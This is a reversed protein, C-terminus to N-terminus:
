VYVYLANYAILIQKFQDESHHRLLIPNQSTLGDGASFRLDLQMKSSMQLFFGEPVQHVFDAWMSLCQNPQKVKFLQNNVRAFRFDKPANPGGEKGEAKRGTTTTAKMYMPKVDMMTTSPIILPLVNLKPYEEFKRYRLRSKYTLAM